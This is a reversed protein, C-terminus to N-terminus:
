TSNSFLDGILCTRVDPQISEISSIPVFASAAPSTLLIRLPTVSMSVLSNQVPWREGNYKCKISGVSCIIFENDILVPLSVHDLPLPFLLSMCQCILAAHVDGHVVISGAGHALGSSANMM